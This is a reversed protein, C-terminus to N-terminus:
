RSAITAASEVGGSLNDPKRHELTELRLGFIEVLERNADGVPVCDRARSQAILRAAGASDRGPRAQQVGVVFPPLPRSGTSMSAVARFDPLVSMAKDDYDPGFWPALLKGDGPGLRFMFKTGATLVADAISQRGWRDTLQGAASQCAATVALGFKRAESLMRSLSDTAFTQMEDVYLRFERRSHAPLAAQELAASFFQALALGGLVQVEAEPLIGRSLNFLVIKGERVAQGLDISSNPRCLLRKMIPHTVFPGLRHAIYPVWERYGNDSGRTARFNKWSMVLSSDECRDLVQDCYDSDELIRVADLFTGQRERNSCALMLLSRLNNRMGPGSSDRTEIQAEILKLIEGIVFQARVPDDRLGALPNFHAAFDADGADVIIVDNARHAPVLDLVQRVLDGHPDILGIGRNQRRDALDESILQALLNSKGSGTAGFIAVHQPRSRHPVVVRSSDAGCVTRGVVSGGTCPPRVTPQAFHQAVGLTPLLRPSPFLAPLGQGALLVWSLPIPAPRPQTESAARARFPRNGFLDRGLRRLATQGVPSSGALTVDVACTSPRRLLAKLMRTAPQHLEEAVTFRGVPSEPHFPHLAGSALLGLIQQLEDGEADALSRAHFRIVVELVDPLVLSENFPATFLWTPLEAPFPVSREDADGDAMRRSGRPRTPGPRPALVLPALTLHTRCAPSDHAASSRARAMHLAPCTTALTEELRNGLDTPAPARARVSFSYRPGRRTAEIRHVFEVQESAQLHELFDSLADLRFNYKDIRVSHMRFEQCEIELSPLANSPLHRRPSPVLRLAPRATPVPM